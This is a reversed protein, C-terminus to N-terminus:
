SGNTAGGPNDTDVQSHDPGEGWPIQWLWKCERDRKNASLVITIPTKHGLPHLGGRESMEHVWTVMKLSYM